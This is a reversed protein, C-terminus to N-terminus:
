FSSEPPLQPMRVPQIRLMGAPSSVFKHLITAYVPLYNCNDPSSLLCARVNYAPAQLSDIPSPILPLNFLSIEAAEM